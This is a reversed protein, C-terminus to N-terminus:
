IVKTNVTGDDFKIDLEDGTEVDKASSIVKDGSKAITYGRKLTLLPNLVELKNINKLCAERKRKTIEEPNKLMHSNELKFLKNRNHSIITKSSFELKNVLNDLEMGKIDYISEPNKLVNKQSIFKLRTKNEQLKNKITRNIKYSLQNVNNKVESLNPVALEAAATPTAARKDAVFDAITYDIEHGVASIIPTECAYIERAVMEENFAWLDEISGGGRGVILTDIDFRQSYKIQRVINPAAHPGQVLTSFVLIECIPYRRQITTIIDRVAAGTQATVVGIRKPYKPIEKKHSEKFLGENDLKRRLEEFRAYLEGIGDEKITTVYLQYKGDKEYVEIKGKIIVKMGNKPVISKFRQKNFKFFVAPIQSDEDKLTFYSHGSPYTKYNSIEGKILINVLNSDGKFMKNIYSNIESVTYTKEDMYDGKIKITIINNSNLVIKSKL